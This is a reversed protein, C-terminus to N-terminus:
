TGVKNKELQVHAHSKSSFSYMVHHMYGTMSDPPWSSKKKKKKRQPNKQPDQKTM